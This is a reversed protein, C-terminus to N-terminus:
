PYKGADGRKKIAKARAKYSSAGDGYAHKEGDDTSLAALLAAAFRTPIEGLLTTVDAASSATQTSLWKSTVRMASPGNKKDDDAHVKEHRITLDEAWFGDRPPRGNLDTMDPTLDKVVDAYNTKTIDADTDGAIDVQSDPGTGSRVQWTIPHELTAKVTYVAKKLTTTVGTLKSSFSRTVGFGSPTAGGRAISGSYSFGASIADSKAVEALAPVEIDPLSMTVEGGAEPAPGEAAADPAPTPAAPAAASGGGAPPAGEPDATVAGGIASALAAAPDEEVGPPADSRAALAAPREGLQPSPGRPIEAEFAYREVTTATSPAPGPTDPVRRLMTGVSANGAGRQLWRLLAVADNAAAM